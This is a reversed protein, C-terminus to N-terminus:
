LKSPLLNGCGFTNQPDLEKKVAELMKVGADSLSNRMWRRRIKGVSIFDFINLLHTTNNVEMTILYVEEELLFKMM